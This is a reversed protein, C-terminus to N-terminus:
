ERIFEGDSGWEWNGGGAGLEFHLKAIGLDFGVLYKASNDVSAKVRGDEYSFMVPQKNMASPARVVAAMGASFWEPVREDSTFMDSESKEKRHTLKHIFKEKSSPKEDVNGVTILCALREDDTLELPTKSKNFTGGVWCTGLGLTTAHLVLLEGYYGIKEDAYPNYDKAVFGFYHNVGSLMGYSRTFGKFAEGNNLILEVRFGGIGNYEEVLNKLKEIQEAELQGGVYKRRSTRVNIAELLTMKNLRGEYVNQAQIEEEKKEKIGLADKLISFNSVDGGQYAFDVWRAVAGSMFLYEGEKTLDDFHLKFGYKLAEKKNFSYWTTLDHEILYDMLAILKMRDKKNENTELWPLIGLDFLRQIMFKFGFWDSTFKLKKTTKKKGVKIVCSVEVYQALTISYCKIKANMTANTIRNFSFKNKRFFRHFVIMKGQVVIKIRFPKTGLITIGVLAFGLGLGLLSDNVSIVIVFVGIAIWILGLSRMWKPPRMVFNFEDMSTEIKHLRWIMIRDILLLLGIGVGLFILNTM